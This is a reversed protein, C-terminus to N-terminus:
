REHSVAGADVAPAPAAGRYVQKEAKDLDAPLARSAVAPAPSPTIPRPRSGRRAAPHQQAVLLRVTAELEAIRKEQTQVVEKTVQYGAEAKNKSAQVRVQADATAVRYATVAGIIVPVLVAIVAAATKAGAIYRKGVPGLPSINDVTDNM